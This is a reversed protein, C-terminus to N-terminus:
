SEDSICGQEIWGCAMPGYWFRPKKETLDKAKARGTEFYFDSYYKLSDHRNDAGYVIVM